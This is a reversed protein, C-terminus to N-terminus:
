ERSRWWRTTDVEVFHRRGVSDVETRVQAVRIHVELEAEPITGDKQDGIRTLWRRYVNMLRGVQRRVWPLQLSGIDRLM